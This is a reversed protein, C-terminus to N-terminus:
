ISSKRNKDREERELSCYYRLRVPFSAGGPSGTRVRRQACEELLHTVSGAEGGQGGGLRQRVAELGPGVLEGGELGVKVLIVLQEVLDARGTLLLVILQSINLVSSLLRLGSHFLSQYIEAITHLLM